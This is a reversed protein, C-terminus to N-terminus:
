SRQAWLDEGGRLTRWTINIGKLYGEEYGAYALPRVTKEQDFERYGVWAMRLGGVEVLIRCISQLLENEESARVLAQNCEYTTHLTRNLRGVKEEARKREIGQALTDAVAELAELTDPALHKRAFMAVVGVLRGEVLLPYGAFSGMREQKAWDPHRIRPENLVENTLHPQRQEAILGIKFKGVPVRAHEGDLRTYLGASAQLELLKERDNLTWIRAFAADLHRVIAESSRQLMTQLRTEAAACFAAHIDARLAAHRARRAQLEEARKLETIDTAIGCIAYPKTTRDQLLFKVVVYQRQGQTMPVTEEFQIPTGAQIVHQDNARVTEAVDHPFIDFDTKGCIQDRRVQHRREYERNVLLYRLDLDKVFVVATTNDLIDQLRQESIRLAEEARRRENIEAM